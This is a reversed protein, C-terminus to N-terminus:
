RVFVDGWLASGRSVLLIEDLIRDLPVWRPLALRTESAQTFNADVFGLRAVEALCMKTGPLLDAALNFEFSLAPPRTSITSLVDADMGEVDIKIFDPEVYRSFLSAGAVMEVDVTTCRSATQGEVAAVFLESVTSRGGEVSFQRLRVRGDSRGVAAPVVTLRGETIERAFRKALAAVCRPDPEFAIVRAGLRLFADTKVGDNAGIDFVLDGRKVFQAYLRREHVVQEWRLVRAWPQQLRRRVSGPLVHGLRALQIFRM